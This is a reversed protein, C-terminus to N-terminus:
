RRAPCGKQGPFIGSNGAAPHVKKFCSQRQRPPKVPTSTSQFPVASEGAKQLAFSVKMLVDPEMLICGPVGDLFMSIHICQRICSFLGWFHLLDM